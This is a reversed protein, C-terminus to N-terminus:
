KIERLQWNETHIAQDFTGDFGVWYTGNQLWPLTQKGAVVSDVIVDHDLHLTVFNGRDHGFWAMRDKSIVAMTPDVPVWGIGECFYEPYAHQQAYAADDLKQGKTASMAWRGIRLRAPIGGARLASVFVVSIGGCDSKGAQCVATATRDLKVAYEYTFKQTVHLYVRKGYDLDREQKSRQLGQEKLWSQFDESEFNLLTTPMLFLKREAASLPAVVPATRGAPVPVLQRAALDAEYTAQLTIKTELEKSVVKVRARLLPHRLPSLDEISDAPHNLSSKVNTQGPLEPLRPAFLIWEQAKLKPAHVDLTLIALIRKAPQVELMYAPQPAPTPQAALLVTAVYTALPMM